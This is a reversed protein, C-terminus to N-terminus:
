EAATKIGLNFLGVSNAIWTYCDTCIKTNVESVLHDSDHACFKCETDYAYSERHTIMTVISYWPRRYFSSRLM